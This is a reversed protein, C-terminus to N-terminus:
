IGISKLNNMTKCIIKRCYVHLAFFLDSLDLDSIRCQLDLLCNLFDFHLLAFFLRLNSNFVIFIVTVIGRSM